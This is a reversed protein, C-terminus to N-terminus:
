LKEVALRMRLDKKFGRLGEDSRGLRGGPASTNTIRRREMPSTTSVVGASAASCAHRGSKRMRTNSAGNQTGSSSPLGATVSTMSHRPNQGVTRSNRRRLNAIANLM